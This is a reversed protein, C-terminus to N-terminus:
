RRAIGADRQLRELGGHGLVREIDRMARRTQSEVMADFLRQLLAPKRAQAVRPHEDDLIHSSPLAQTAM